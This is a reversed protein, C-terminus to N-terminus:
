AGGSVAGPLSEPCGAGQEPIRSQSAGEETDAPLMHALTLQCDADATRRVITCTGMKFSAGRLGSLLRQLMAPLRGRKLVQAAALFSPGCYSQLNAPSRSDWMLRTWLCGPGRVRDVLRDGRKTHFACECPAHPRSECVAGASACHNCHNKKSHHQIQQKRHGEHKCTKCGAPLCVSFAGSSYRRVSALRLIAQWFSLGLLMSATCSAPRPAGLHQAVCALEVLSAASTACSRTPLNQAGTHVGQLACLCVAQHVAYLATAGSSCAVGLLFSLLLLSPGAQANRSRRCHAAPHSTWCLEWGTWSDLMMRCAAPM